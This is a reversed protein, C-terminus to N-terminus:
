DNRPQTKGWYREVLGFVLATGVVLVLQTVVPTSVLRGDLWGAGLAASKLAYYIIKGFLIAILMALVVPVRRTGTLYLYSAALLCLEIGILMAKVPEPHGTIWSSALPVTLALLFTNARNTFLLAVLLAIRMPELKYLPLAALHSLSPVLYLGALLAADILIIRRYKNLAALATAM